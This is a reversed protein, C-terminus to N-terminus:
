TRRTMVGRTNKDTPFIYTEHKKSVEYGGVPICLIVVWYAM